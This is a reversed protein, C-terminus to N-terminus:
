YKFREDPFFMDFFIQLGIQDSFPKDMGRDTRYRILEGRFYPNCKFIRWVRLKKKTRCRYANVEVYWTNSIGFREMLSVFDDDFHVKSYKLRDM